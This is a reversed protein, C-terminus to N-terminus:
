CAGKGRQGFILGTWIRSKEITFKVTGTRVETDFHSTHNGSISKVGSKVSKVFEKQQRIMNDLLGSWVDLVIDNM